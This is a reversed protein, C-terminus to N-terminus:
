LQNGGVIHQGPLIVANLAWVIDPGVEKGYAMPPLARIWCKESATIGSGNLDKIILSAVGAGGGARRDAVYIASLLANNKSSRKFTFTVNHVVDDGTEYRTVSGDSGTIVAYGDGNPEVRVFEDARMDELNLGAFNVIVDVARYLGFSSM